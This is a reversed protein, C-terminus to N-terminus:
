KELSRFNQIKKVIKANLKRPILKTLFVTLKNLIGPIAITKGKQMKKYGYLCVTRVNAIPLNEFLKSNDLNASKAFGTNTPGPCFATVTINTNSLESSLAESLSQVYAKSAYYVAMLPGPQFGAISSVNMIKGSNKKIMSPLILRTLTTLTLINLNIMNVIKSIDNTYFYGHDGIGANNILIDINANKLEKFLENASEPLSLDKIIIDVNINYDKTLNKQHAELKDKSRAVLILNYNNQACIISLEYGIGSSAGTILATKSM